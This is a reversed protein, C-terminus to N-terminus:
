EGWRRRRLAVCLAALAGLLVGSFGAGPLREHPAWSYQTLDEGPRLPVIAATVFVPLGEIEPEPRGEIRLRGDWEPPANGLHLKAEQLAAAGGWGHVELYTEAAADRWEGPSREWFLRVRTPGNGLNSLRVPVIAPNEPDRALVAVDLLPFYDAKFTAEAYVYASDTASCGAALGDGGEAYARVILKQDMFALANRDLSVTVSTEWGEITWSEFPHPPVGPQPGGAEITRAETAKNLSANVHSDSPLLQYHMQIIGGPCVTPGRVEVVFHFTFVATEIEPSLRGESGLGDVSVSLASVTLPRDIQTQAAATTAVLTFGMLALIPVVRSTRM